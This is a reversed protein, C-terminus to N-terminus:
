NKDEENIMMIIKLAMAKKTIPLMNYYKMFLKDIYAEDSYFNANFLENPEINYVDIIKILTQLSPYSKGNEINSLNSNELNIGNCFAEQTLNLSTRIRKINRGIKEKDDM